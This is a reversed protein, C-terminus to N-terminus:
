LRVLDPSKQLCKDDVLLRSLRARKRSATADDKAMEGEFVM